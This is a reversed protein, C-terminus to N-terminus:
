QGTWICKLVTISEMRAEEAGTDSTVDIDPGSTSGTYESTNDNDSPGTNGTYDDLTITHSHAGGGSTDQGRENPDLISGDSGMGTCANCLISHVGKHDHDGVGDTSGTHGHNMTHTHDGLTHSHNMTHTHSNLTHSHVKNTNTQHTGIDIGAHGRTVLGLGGMEQPPLRFNGSGPSPVGGTNNWLDGIAAYLEPYGTQSVESGDCVLSGEPINEPLGTFDFMIGALRTRDIKKNIEDLLDAITIEQGPTCELLKEFGM